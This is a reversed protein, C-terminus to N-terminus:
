DADPQEASLVIPAHGEVMSRDLWKEAEEPSEIKKDLVNLIMEKTLITNFKGTFTLTRAQHPFKVMFPVHQKDLRGDYTNTRWHHDSSIVVLSSDWVGKDEMSKRLEGLCRDALAVNDFYGTGKNRNFGLRGTHRDYINPSHPLSYHLFMFSADNEKVVSSVDARMRTVIQMQNDALLTNNFPIFRMDVVERQQRLFVDSFRDSTYFNYRPYDRCLDLDRMTRGYPIFWGLLATSGGRAKVQRFISDAGGFDSRARTGAHVLDLRRAGVPVTRELPIGTLLSPLSTQTNDNPSYARTAFLATSRFRDFEPLALFSPRNGFCLRYDTEDFIIWVVRTGLPNQLARPPTVAHPHFQAAPELRWLALCSQGFTVLLYPAFILPLVAYCRALRQRHRVLLLVLLVGAFWCFVSFGRAGHAGFLFVFKAYSIFAVGVGYCVTLSTALFVALVIWPFLAARKRSVRVLLFLLGGWLVVNLMAALYTNLPSFPKFFNSGPDYPLIKLWLKLFMLNAISLSVLLDRRLDKAFMTSRWSM